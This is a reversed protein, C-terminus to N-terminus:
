SGSVGELSAFDDVVVRWWDFVIDLNQRTVGGALTVNMEVEIRHGLDTKDLRRLKGFRRGANWEAVAKPAIKGIERRAVFRLDQCDRGEKCGYFEIEYDIEGMKARIIPDRLSDKGWAAEGYRWAIDSIPQPDTADILNAPTPVPAEPRPTEAVPLACAALVAIFTALVCAQLARRAPAPRSM